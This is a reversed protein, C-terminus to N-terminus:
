AALACLRERVSESDIGGDPHRRLKGRGVLDHVGQRTIGLMAGATAFSVHHRAPHGVRRATVRGLPTRWWSEPPDFPEDGPYLAALLRAVLAVAPEDASGPSQAAWMEADARVRERLPGTGAGDLLIELPDLLRGGVLRVLEGALEAHVATSDQAM